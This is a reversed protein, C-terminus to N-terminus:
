SIKVLWLGVWFFLKLNGNELLLNKLNRKGNQIHSKVQNLTFGTIEAVEKYSKEEIYFLAVCQKQEGDLQEMAIEMAQLNSEKDSDYEHHLISDNEVNKQLDNEDLFRTEGNLKNTRLQMLCANKTVVHLWSKFNTIEFRYIDHQVKEFVNMAMDKAKEEDRLYKMCILFVFRLYRGLLAGLMINSTESKIIKLLEEDPLTQIQQQTFM